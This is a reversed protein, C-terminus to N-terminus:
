VLGQEVAADYTPRRRRDICRRNRSSNGGCYADFERAPRLVDGDADGDVGHRILSGLLGIM